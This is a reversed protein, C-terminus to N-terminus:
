TVQAYKVWVNFVYEISSYFDVEIWRLSYEVIYNNPVVSIHLYKVNLTAFCSSIKRWSLSFTSLSRSSNWAWFCFNSSSIARIASICWICTNQGHKISWVYMNELSNTWLEIAVVYNENNQHGWINVGYIAITTGFPPTWVATTNKLSLIATEIM